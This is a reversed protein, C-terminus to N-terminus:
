ACKERRTLHLRRVLWTKICHWCFRKSDGAELVEGCKHCHPWDSYDHKPDPCSM